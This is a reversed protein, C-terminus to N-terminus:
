GAAPPGAAHCPPSSQAFSKPHSEALLPHPTVTPARQQQPGGVLRCLAPSGQQTPGAPQGTTSLGIPTQSFEGQPSLCRWGQDSWGQAGRGRLLSRGRQAAPDAQTTPTPISDLVTTSFIPPYCTCVLSSRDRRWPLVNRPGNSNKHSCDAWYKRPSVAM